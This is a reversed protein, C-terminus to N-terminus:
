RDHSAIPPVIPYDSDDRFPRGDVDCRYWAKLSVNALCYRPALTISIHLHDGAKRQSNQCLDARIFDAIRRAEIAADPDSVQPSRDVEIMDGSTSTFQIMAAGIVSAVLGM